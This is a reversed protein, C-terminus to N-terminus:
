TRPLLILQPFPQLPTALRENKIFNELNAVKDDTLLFGEIHYPEAIEELLWEELPTEKVDKLHKRHQNIRENRLVQQMYRIFMRSVERESSM